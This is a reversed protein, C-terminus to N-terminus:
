FLGIFKEATVKALDLDPLVLDPLRSFPIMEVTVPGNYNMKDLENIVAQFNVDGDTLDEGFGHLGGAFDEGKFNKFHVAKIRKGLIQIWHEPYGNILCNGIDFYSGVRNSGFQDIFMKMEMPGVLFKNWVNELCINVGLGEAVPVLEKISATSNEWVVNYPVVPCTEDWEAKVVGPIFLASEAGLWSAIELYKKAVEVAEKRKGQDPTGLGNGWFYGCAVSRIGVGNEEAYAKIKECDDKTAELSVCDGITLEVGDLGFKKVDDIAEFANREGGFGSLIWSNMAKYYSM